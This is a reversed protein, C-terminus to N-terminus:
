TARRTPDCTDGRAHKTGAESREGRTAFVLIYALAACRIAFYVGWRSPKPIVLDALLGFVLTAAMPWAFLRRAQRDTYGRLAAWTVVVVVAAGAGIALCEAINHLQPYNIFM